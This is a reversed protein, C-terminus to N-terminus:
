FQVEKKVIFKNVTANSNVGQNSAEDKMFQELIKQNIANNSKLSGMLEKKSVLYGLQVQAVGGASKPSVYGYERSEDALFEITVINSGVHLAQTIVKMPATGIKEDGYQLNVQYTGAQTVSIPVLIQLKKFLSVTILQGNIGQKESFPEQTEFSVDGITAYNEYHPETSTIAGAETSAEKTASLTAVYISVLRTVSFFAGGALCLLSLWFILAARKKNKEVNETDSEIRTGIKSGIYSFIIVCTLFIILPGGIM